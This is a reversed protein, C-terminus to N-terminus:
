AELAALGPLTRGELFELAAGGGTSVHSIEEALGSQAVAAASDGGGVVSFAGSRAIETAIAVTGRDFPKTEFVGLPGNWFITKAHVIRDAFRRITVPGIDVGKWGAPIGPGTIRSPAAAALEQVAVHDTPLLVVVERKAAADLIERALDIEEEAVLSDGVEVGQARLFTYAMAGGVLLADIRDVLHRVMGIKDAVKAGGLVVVFPRAPSGLLPSLNEIERQMLPGIAHAAIFPVMGVTSAHARHATGFADNVYVEALAALERAFRPDNAEEGAHFRLNELLLVERPGLSRSQALTKEGISDEALVVKLHLVEGLYEAVPRLTLAPVKRGKPRGLHSAVIARGGNAIVWKVAPLAEDIRTSDTIKGDCIPVNLDARIFVRKGTVPVEELKRLTM